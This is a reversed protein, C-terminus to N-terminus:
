SDLTFKVTIIVSEAVSHQPLQISADQEVEQHPYLLVAKYTGEDEDVTVEYPFFSHWLKPEYEIREMGILSAIRALIRTKFKPYLSVWTHQVSRTSRLKFSCITKERVMNLLCADVAAKVHGPQTFKPRLVLMSAMWTIESTIQLISTATPKREEITM